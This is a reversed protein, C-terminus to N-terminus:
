IFKQELEDYVFKKYKNKDIKKKCYYRAWIEKNMTKFNVKEKNQQYYFNKWIILLKYFKM